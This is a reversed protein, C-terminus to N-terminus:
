HCLMTQFLKHLLSIYFCEIIFFYGLINGIKTKSIGGLKFFYGFRIKKAWDILKVLVVPFSMIIPEIAFSLLDHRVTIGIITISLRTISLAM